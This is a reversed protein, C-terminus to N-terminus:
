VVTRERDHKGKFALAQPTGLWRTAAATELHIDIFGPLYRNQELFFKYTRTDNNRTAHLISTWDFQYDHWREREIPVLPKDSSRRGWFQVIGDAGAQTLGDMLDAAELNHEGSVRWGVRGALQVFDIIPMREPPSPQVTLSAFEAGKQSNERRDFFRCFALYIIAVAAFAIVMALLIMLGDWGQFYAAMGTAGGIGSSVITGAFDLRAARDYWRWFTESRM